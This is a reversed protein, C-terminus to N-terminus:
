PHLRVRLDTALKYVSRLKEVAEAPLQPVAMALQSALLIGTVTSTLEGRFESAVAKRAAAQERQARALAAQVQSVVRRPCSIAFNVMVPPASLETELREWAGDEAEALVQDLIVVSKGSARLLRRAEALSSCCQAKERLAATLSKAYEGAREATTVLLIM